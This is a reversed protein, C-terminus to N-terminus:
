EDVEEASEGLREDFIDAIKNYEAEDEISELIDDEGEKTLRMILVEVENDSNEDIEDPNEYYPLLAYYEKGDEEIMDIIEFDHNKGNEDELSIVQIEDNNMEESM